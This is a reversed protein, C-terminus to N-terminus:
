RSPVLMGGSLEQISRETPLTDFSKKVKQATLAMVIHTSSLSPITALSSKPFSSGNSEAVQPKTSGPAPVSTDKALLAAIPPPLPQQPEPRTTPTIEIGTDRGYEYFLEAKQDSYSYIDIPKSIKEVLPRRDAMRRAMTALTTKAGIEVYKEVSQQADFM